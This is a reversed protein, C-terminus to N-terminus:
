NARVTVEYRGTAEKASVVITWVGFYEDEDEEDWKFRQSWSVDALPSVEFQHVEKGTPDVLSILITGGEVSGSANFHFYNSGEQVDYKFKTSFTLDEVSKHIRLSTSEKSEGYFSTVMEPYSLSKGRSRFNFEPVVINEADTVTIQLNELISQYQQMAHEQIKKQDEMIAKLEVADIKRTEKLMMELELKNQLRDMEIQLEIQMRQNIREEKEKKSQAFSSGASLFLGVILFPIIQKILKM